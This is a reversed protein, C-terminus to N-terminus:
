SWGVLVVGLAILSVAATRRGTIKEGFLIRGGIMVCLINFSGLLVALSLPVMSLFALWLLIEFVYASLGIWIWKSAIMAKWHAFGEEEGGHLAAAKFALQGITDTFLNLVWILTAIPTM